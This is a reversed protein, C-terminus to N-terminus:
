VSAELELGRIVYGASILGMNRRIRMMHLKLQEIPGM